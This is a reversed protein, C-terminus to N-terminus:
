FTISENEKYDQVEQVDDRKRFDISHFLLFHLIASSLLM